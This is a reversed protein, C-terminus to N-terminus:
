KNVVKLPPIDEDTDPLTDIIGSFAAEHDELSTNSSM